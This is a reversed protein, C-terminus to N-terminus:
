ANSVASIQWTPAIKGQVSQSEPIRILKLTNAPLRFNTVLAVVPSASLSVKISCGADAAIWVYKTTPQFIVAAASATFDAVGDVCTGDDYPMDLSDGQDTRGLFRFERTYLKTM